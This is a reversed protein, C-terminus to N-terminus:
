YGKRALTEKLRAVRRDADALGDKVTSPSGRRLNLVPNCPRASAAKRIASRLAEQGKRASTYQQSPTLYEGARADQDMKKKMPMTVRRALELGGVISAGGVMNRAIESAAGLTRSSAHKEEGDEDEESQGDRVAAQGGTDESAGLGSDSAAVRQVDSGCKPCAPVGPKLKAGCSLCHISKGPISAAGAQVSSPGPAPPGHSAGGYSAGGMNQSGVLNGGAMVTALKRINVSM